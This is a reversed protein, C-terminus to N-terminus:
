PEWKRREVWETQHHGGTQWLRRREEALEYGQSPGLVLTIMDNILIPLTSSKIIIRPSSADAPVTRSNVRVRFCFLACHSRYLQYYM